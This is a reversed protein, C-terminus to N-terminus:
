VVATCIAAGTGSVISVVSWGVGTVGELVKGQIQHKISLHSHHIEKASRTFAVTTDKFCTTSKSASATFLIPGPRESISL